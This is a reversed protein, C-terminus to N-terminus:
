PGEHGTFRHFRGVTKVKLTLKTDAQKNVELYYSSTYSSYYQWKPQEPGCFTFHILTIDDSLLSGKLLSQEGQSTVAGHTGNTSLYLVQWEWQKAQCSDVHIVWSIIESFHWWKRQRCLLSTHIKRYQTPSRTYRWQLSQCERVKTTHPLTSFRITQIHTVATQVLMSGRMNPM